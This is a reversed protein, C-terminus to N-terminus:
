VCREAKLRDRWEQVRTRMERREEENLRIDDLPTTYYVFNGDEDV